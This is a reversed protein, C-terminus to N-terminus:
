ATVVVDRAVDLDAGTERANDAEIRPRATSILETCPQEAPHAGVPQQCGPCTNWRAAVRDYKAQQSATLAVPPLAPDLTNLVLTVYVPAQRDHHNSAAWSGNACDLRLAVALLARQEHPDRDETLCALRVVHGLDARTTM